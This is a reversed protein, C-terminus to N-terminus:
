FLTKNREHTALPTLDPPPSQPLHDRPEQTIGNQIPPSCPVPPGLPLSDFCDGCARCVQGPFLRSATAHSSLTVANIGAEGGAKLDHQKTHLFTRRSARACREPLAFHVNFRKNEKRGLCLAAMGAPHRSTSWCVRSPTLAPLGSLTHAFGCASVRFNCRVWGSAM